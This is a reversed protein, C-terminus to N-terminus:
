QEPFTRKFLYIGTVVWGDMVNWKLRLKYSQSYVRFLIYVDYVFAVGGGTVDYGSM